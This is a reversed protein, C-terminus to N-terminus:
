FGWYFFEPLCGQESPNLEPTLPNIKLTVIKCLELCQVSHCQWLCYDYGACLVNNTNAYWSVYWCCICLQTLDKVEPEAVTETVKVTLLKLFTGRAQAVHLLYHVAPHITM